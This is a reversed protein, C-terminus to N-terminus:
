KFLVVGDDADLLALVIAAFAQNAGTTVVM